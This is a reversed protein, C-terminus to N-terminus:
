MLTVLLSVQVADYFPHLIGLLQRKPKVEHFNLTIYQAILAAQLSSPM